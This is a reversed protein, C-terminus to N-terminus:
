MRRLRAIREDIPPHTSWISEKRVRKFPNALYLSAVTRDGHSPEPEMGSIKQLASALGEPNRTLKAGTADALYERRRNIAMYVMRSLIPALIALAIAVVIMVPNSNRNNGRGMFVSWFVIEGIMAILGILAVAYTGVRIDENKIHAMEHAIVGEMEEKTLLKLAGTTICIVGEEPKRGTAFANIDNRDQVFARPTPIGAAIAMEEVSYMFLKEERKNPNPKRAGASRLIMDVSFSSASALYILGFILAFPGTVLPPYGLAYGVGFVIAFLILFLVMFLRTTVKRNHRIQDDLLWAQRPKAM